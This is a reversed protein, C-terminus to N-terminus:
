TQALHWAKVNTKDKFAEPLLKGKEDLPAILISAYNGFEDNPFFFDVVKIEEGPDCKLQEERSNYKCGFAITGDAERKFM